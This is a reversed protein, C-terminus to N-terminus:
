PAEGTELKSLESALAEALTTLRSISKALPRNNNLGEGLCLQIICDHDVEAGAEGLKILYHNLHSRWLVEEAVVILDSALGEILKSDRHSLRAQVAIIIAELADGRRLQLREAAEAGLKRLRRIAEAKPTM